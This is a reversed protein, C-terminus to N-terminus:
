GSHIDGKESTGGRDSYKFRRQITTQLVALELNMQGTPIPIPSALGVPQWRAGTRQNKWRPPHQTGAMGGLGPSGPSSSLTPFVGQTVRQRQSTRAWHHETSRPVKDEFETNVNPSLEQFAVSVDELRQLCMSNM